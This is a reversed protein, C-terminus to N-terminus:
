TEVLSASLVLMLFSWIFTLFPCPNLAFLCFSVNHFSGEFHRLEFSLLLSLLFGVVCCSKECIHAPECKDSATEQPASSGPVCM